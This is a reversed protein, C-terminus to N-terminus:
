QIHGILLFVCIIFGSTIIIGIIIGVGIDIEGM